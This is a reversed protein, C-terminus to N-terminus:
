ISIEELFVGQFLTEGAETCGNSQEAQSMFSVM